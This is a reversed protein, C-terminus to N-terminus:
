FDGKKKNAGKISYVKILEWYVNIDRVKRFLYSFYFYLISLKNIKLIM